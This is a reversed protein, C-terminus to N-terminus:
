IKLSGSPPTTFVERLGAAANKIGLAAPGEPNAVARVAQVGGRISEAGTVINLGAEAVQSGNAVVHNIPAFPNLALLGDAFQVIKEAATTLFSPPVLKPLESGTVKAALEQIPHAFWGTIPSDLLGQGIQQLMTLEPKPAELVHHLLNMLSM